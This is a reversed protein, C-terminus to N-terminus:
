APMHHVVPMWLTISQVDVAQLCTAVVLLNMCTAIGQFSTVKIVIQGDVKLSVYPVPGKGYCGM